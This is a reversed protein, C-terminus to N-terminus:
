SDEPSRQLLQRKIWSNAHEISEACRRPGATRAENGTPNNPPWQLLQFGHHIEPRHTVLHRREQRRCAVLRPSSRSTQPPSLLGGLRFKAPPVARQPLTPPSAQGPQFHNHWRECQCPPGGFGGVTADVRFSRARIEGSGLTHFCCAATSCLLFSVNVGSTM